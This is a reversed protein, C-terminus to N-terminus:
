PDMPCVYIVPASASTEDPPTKAKGTGLQVLAPAANMNELKPTASLYQRPSSEFKHLCGKSCFYYTKDEHKATGAAKDPVVTMGCVPDIHKAVSDGLSTM